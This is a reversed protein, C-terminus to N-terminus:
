KQADTRENDTVTYQTRDTTFRKSLYATTTYHSTHLVHFPKNM